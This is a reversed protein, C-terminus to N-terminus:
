APHVLMRPTLTVDTDVDPQCSCSLLKARSMSFKTRRPSLTTVVLLPLLPLENTAASRLPLPCAERLPLSPLFADLVDHFLSKHTLPV